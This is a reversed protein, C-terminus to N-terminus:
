AAKKRRKASGTKKPRPPAAGGAIKQELALIAKNLAARLRELARVLDKRPKAATIGGGSTLASINKQLATVSSRLGQELTRIIQALRDLQKNRPM